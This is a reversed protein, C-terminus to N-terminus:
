IEFFIRVVGHPCLSPDVNGFFRGCHSLLWLFLNPSNIQTRYFVWTQGDLLKGIGLLSLDDKPVDVRFTHIMGTNSM